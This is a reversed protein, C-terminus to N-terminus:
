VNRDGMKIAREIFIDKRFRPNTEELKDAFRRAISNVTIKVNMDPLRGSWNRYGRGLSEWDKKYDPLVDAIFEFDERTM